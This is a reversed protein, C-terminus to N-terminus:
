EILMLPAFVTTNDGVDSDLDAIADGDILPAMQVDIHKNSTQMRVNMIRVGAFQTLTFYVTGGGNGILPDTFIVMVRSQGLIQQFGQDIPGGSIGTDSNANATVQNDGGLIFAGNTLLGQADMASFDSESLGYLIQEKIASASNSTDGLDVTGANGPALSTFKQPYMNVELWGDPSNATVTASRGDAPVAAYNDFTDQEYVPQGTKKDFVLDGQNDRKQIFFLQYEPTSPNTPIVHHQDYWAQAQQLRAWMTDRFAFPIISNAKGRFGNAPMVVATADVAMKQTSYGILRAFLLPLPADGNSSGTQDRRLTVKVMNYPSHATGWACDWKKTVSNFTAHGFAVDRSPDAYSHALDGNPHYGAFEVAVPRAAAEVQAPTKTAFCGVGALLETAGALAAADVAAQLQTQTCMIHGIDFALAVVAFLVMATLLILILGISGRRSNV